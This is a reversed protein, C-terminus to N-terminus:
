DGGYLELFLDLDEDELNQNQYRSQMKRRITNIKMRTRPLALQGFLSDHIIWAISETRDLISYLKEDVTRLINPNQARSLIRKVKELAKKSLKKYTTLLKRKQEFM